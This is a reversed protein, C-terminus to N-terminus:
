WKITLVNDPDRQSGVMKSVVFGKDELFQVVNNPISKQTYYNVYFKGEKIAEDIHKYIDELLEIQNNYINNETNKRAETANYFDTM